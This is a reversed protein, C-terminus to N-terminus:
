RVSPGFLSEPVCLGSHINPHLLRHLVLVGGIGVDLGFVRPFLPINEDVLESAVFLDVGDTDSVLSEVNEQSAFVRRSGQEATQPKSQCSLWLDILLKVGFDGLQVAFPWRVFGKPVHLIHLISHLFTVVGSRVIALVYSVVDSVCAV